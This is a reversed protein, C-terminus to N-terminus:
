LESYRRELSARAMHLSSSKCEMPVNKSSIAKGTQIDAEENAPERRHAKVKAAGLSSNNKKPARRISGAFYRRRTSSSFDNKKLTAKGGQGVWREVAKPLAQNNRLYFM